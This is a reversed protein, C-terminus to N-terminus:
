INLFSLSIFSIIKSINKLNFSLHIRPGDSFYVFWRDYKLKPSDIRTPFRVVRNKIVQIKKRLPFLSQSALPVHQVLIDTFLLPISLTSRNQINTRCQFQNVTCLKRQPLKVHCFLIKHHFQKRAFKPFDYSLNRQFIVFILALQM